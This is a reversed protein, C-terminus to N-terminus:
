YSEGMVVITGTANFATSAQISEVGDAGSADGMFIYEGVRNGSSNGSVSPVGGSTHDSISLDIRFPYQMWTTEIFATTNLSNQGNNSIRTFRYGTSTNNLTVEVNGLDAGGNGNGLILLNYLDADPLQGTDVSIPTTDDTDEERYLTTTIPGDNVSLEQSSLLSFTM